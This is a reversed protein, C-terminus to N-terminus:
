RALSPRNSPLSSNRSSILCRTPSWRAARCPNSLVVTSSRSVAASLDLPSLLCSNHLLFLFRRVTSTLSATITTPLSRPILLRSNASANPISPDDAVFRTSTARTRPVSLTSIFRSRFPSLFFARQRIDVFEPRVGGQQCRLFSSKVDRSRQMLVDIRIQM